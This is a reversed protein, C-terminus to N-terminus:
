SLCLQHNNSFHYASPSAKDFISYWSLALYPILLQSVEGGIPTLHIALTLVHSFPLAEREVTHLFFLSHINSM